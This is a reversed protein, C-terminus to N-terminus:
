RSLPTVVIVQGPLAGVTSGPEQPKEPSM